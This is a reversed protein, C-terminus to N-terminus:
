LWSLWRAPGDAFPPPLNEFYIDVMGPPHKSVQSRIPELSDGSSLIVITSSGLTMVSGGPRLRTKDKPLVPRASGKGLLARPVLRCDLPAGNSTLWLASTAEENV